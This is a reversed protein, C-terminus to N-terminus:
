LLDGSRNAKFFSLPLTQLKVFLDTRIGESVRLGVYNILVSNAYGAIARILFIFPIWLCTLLLLRNQSINGLKSQLWVQWWEKADGNEGFLVPFVVKTM